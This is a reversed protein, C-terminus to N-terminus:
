DKVVLNYTERELQNLKKDMKGNLLGTQSIALISGTVAVTASILSVTLNHYNLPMSFLATTGAVYAGFGFGFLLKRGGYERAHNIHAYFANRQEESLENLALNENTMKNQEGWIINLAM